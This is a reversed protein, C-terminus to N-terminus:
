FGCLLVHHPEMRAHARKNNRMSPRPVHVSASCTVHLMYLATFHQKDGENIRPVKQAPNLDPLTKVVSLCHVDIVVTVVM